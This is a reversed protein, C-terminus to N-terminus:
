RILEITATPYVSFLGNIIDTRNEPTYFFTALTRDRSVVKISRDRIELTESSVM